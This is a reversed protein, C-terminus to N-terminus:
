SEPYHVADGTSSFAATFLDRNSESSCQAKRGRAPTPAQTDVETALCVKQPLRGPTGQTHVPADALRIFLGGQAKIKM